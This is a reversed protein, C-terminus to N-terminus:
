QWHPDGLASPERGEARDVYEQYYDPTPPVLVGPPPVWPLGLAEALKRADADVLGDHATRRRPPSKVVVWGQEDSVSWDEGTRARLGARIRKVAEARRM